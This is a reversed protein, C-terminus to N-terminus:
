DIYPYILFLHFEFNLKGDNYHPYITHIYFNDDIGGNHIVKTLSLFLLFLLAELIGIQHHVFSNKGLVM